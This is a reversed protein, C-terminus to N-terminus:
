LQLEAGKKMVTAKKNQLKSFKAFTQIREFYKEVSKVADNKGCSHIRNTDQILKCELLQSHCFVFHIAHYKGALLFVLRLIPQFVSLLDNHQCRFFIGVEFESISPM